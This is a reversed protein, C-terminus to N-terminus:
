RVPPCSEPQTAPMLEPLWNPVLAVDVVAQRQPLAAAVAEAVAAFRCASPTALSVVAASFVVVHRVFSSAGCAQAAQVPRLPLLQQQISKSWNTKGIAM